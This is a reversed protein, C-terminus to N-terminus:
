VNLAGIKRMNMYFCNAETEKHNGWLGRVRRRVTVRREEGEREARVM